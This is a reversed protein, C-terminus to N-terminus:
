VGDLAKVADEADRNDEYEIFAFGPPKRAIWVNRLRGYRGFQSPLPSSCPAAPTLAGRCGPACAACPACPSSCAAAAPGPMSQQSVSDELERESVDPPLQGVYVREAMTGARSSLPLAAPPPPSILM